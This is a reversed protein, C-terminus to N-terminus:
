ILSTYSFYPLIIKLSETSVMLMFLGVYQLCNQFAIIKHLDAGEDVYQVNEKINGLMKERKQSYKVLIAMEAVTGM